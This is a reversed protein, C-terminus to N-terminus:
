KQMLQCEQTKSVDEEIIEVEVDSGADSVEAGEESCYLVISIYQCM